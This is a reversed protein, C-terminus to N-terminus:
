HNGAPAPHSRREGPPYAHRLRSPLQLFDSGSHEGPSLGAPKRCRSETLVSRAVRARETAGCFGAWLGHSETSFSRNFRDPHRDSSGIHSRWGPWARGPKSDRRPESRSVGRGLGIGARRCTRGAPGPRPVRRVGLRSRDVPTSVVHPDGSGSETGLAEISRDRGFRMRGPSAARHSPARAPSEM